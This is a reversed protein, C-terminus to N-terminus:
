ASINFVLKMCYFQTLRNSKSTIAFCKYNSFNSDFRSLLYSIEYQEKKFSYKLILFTVLVVSIDVDYLGIINILVIDVENCETLTRVPGIFASTIIFLNETYWRIIKKLKM